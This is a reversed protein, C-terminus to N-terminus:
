ACNLTSTPVQVMISCSRPAEARDDFRFSAHPFPEQETEVLAGRWSGLTAIASAGHSLGVGCLATDPRLPAGITPHPPIVPRDDISDGQSSGLAEELLARVQAMVQVLDVPDMLRGADDTMPGPEMYFWTNEELHIRRFDMRTRAPDFATDDENERAVDETWYYPRNYTHSWECALALHDDHFLLSLDTRGGEGFLQVYALFLRGDDRFYGMAVGGDTSFDEVNITRSVAREREVLASRYMRDWQDVRQGLGQADVPNAAFALMFLVVARVQGM